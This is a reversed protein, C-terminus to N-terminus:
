GPLEFRDAVDGRDHALPVETVLRLEQRVMVPEIVGEAREAAGHVVEVVGLRAPLRHQILVAPGDAAVAVQSVEDRVLGHREDAAGLVLWEEQVDGVCRRM